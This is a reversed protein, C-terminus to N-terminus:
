DGGELIPKGSVSLQMTSDSSASGSMYGLIQIRTNAPIDIYDTPVNGVLALVGGAPVAQYLNAGNPYTFPAQNINIYVSWNAVAISAFSMVFYNIRIPYSPTTIDVIVQATGQTTKTHDLTYQINPIIYPLNSLKVM